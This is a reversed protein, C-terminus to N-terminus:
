KNKSIDEVQQAWFFHGCLVGAIFPIVPHNYALILIIESLTDNKVPNVSLYIDWIILVITLGLLIYFNRINVGLTKITQNNM